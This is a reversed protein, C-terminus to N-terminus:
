EKPGGVPLGLRDNSKLGMVLKVLSMLVILLTQRHIRYWRKIEDLM